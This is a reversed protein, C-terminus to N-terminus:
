EKIIKWTEEERANIIRFLYTGKEYASIDIDEISNKLQIKSLLKGEISIIYLIPKSEIDPIQITLPGKTPNPFISIKEATLEMKKEFTTQIKEQVSRASIINGNTRNGSDDYVFSITQGKMITVVFIFAFTFLHRM